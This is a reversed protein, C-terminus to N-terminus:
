PTVAEVAAVFEGAAEGNEVGGLADSGGESTKESKAHELDFGAGQCVPAIEKDHLTAAGDGEREESEPVERLRRRLRVEEGLLFLVEGVVAHLRVARGDDVFLEVESVGDGNEFLGGTPEDEADLDAQTDRQLGHLQKERLDDAPQPEAGDLRVKVGHCGVDGPGDHEQHQGKRAIEGPQAEWKYRGPEEEGKNAEADVYCDVHLLLKM